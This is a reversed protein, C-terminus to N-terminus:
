YGGNYKRVFWEVTLLFLVVFFVWRLNIMDEYRDVNYIVPAIDERAAIEDPLTEIEEPYFMKAGSNEAIQFMLNHDAITNLDELNLPVINFIGEETYTENGLTASASYTYEGTEFTGLDISYANSTRSFTYDYDLGDGDTITLSVEPENVLEYSRNYLEAEFIVPENELIFDGTSVRFFSRDEVVSLYQVMKTILEDFINHNDRRLFNNLRWRWIGEGTIVGTKRGDTSSFMVLPIQTSVNGIKQYFLVHSDSVTNYRAFPVHLPPYLTVLEESERNTSFLSFSLNNEVQADVFGDARPIIRLGNSLRNFASLDTQNGIIFLQPKRLDRAQQFLSTESFSLSPLQHWIILDYQQFNGNFENILSVEADFNQNTEISQKLVGIDPHPSNGLILVKQRSDIVEIFFDQVNNAYTTEGEADEILVTYKKVGVEDANLEILVDEFYDDSQINVPQSYVVKEDHTVILNSTEGQAERARLQIQVPFINDLYTIRNNTIKQIILDKQPMTDGLAITYFPFFQGQGKYRPNSGRNYIGDSAVIVAGVNTNRYRADVVEFIESFNTLRENFDFNDTENVQEGFTFKVLDYDNELDELVSQINTLYENKVRSSDKSNVLSQSNDQFFLIVPDATKDLQLHVLPAILLLCILFVAIFRTVGLIVKWTQTLYSTKGRFYLILSIATSFVVAIIYFWWPYSTILDFNLAIFVKLHFLLGRTDM